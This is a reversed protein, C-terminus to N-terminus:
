LHQNDISATYKISFFSFIRWVGKENCYQRSLSDKYRFAVHPGFGLYRAVQLIFFATMHIRQATLTPSSIVKPIIYNATSLHPSNRYFLLFNRPLLPITMFSFHFTDTFVHCGEGSGREDSWLQLHTNRGCNRSKYRFCTSPRSIFLSPRTPSPLLLHPLPPTPPPPALSSYPHSLCPHPTATYLNTNNQVFCPCVSLFGWQWVNKTRLMWVFIRKHPQNVPWPYFVGMSLFFVIKFLIFYHRCRRDTVNAKVNGICRRDPVNAKVNGICRRDPVNGKRHTALNM